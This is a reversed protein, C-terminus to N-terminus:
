VGWDWGGYADRWENDLVGRDDNADFVGFLGGHFENDDIRGDRNDDWRDFLSTNREFGSIFEDEEVLNNDNADWDGYTGVNSVGRFWRRNGENWEAETLGAENRDWSNYVGRVFENRDLGDGGGSNWRDYLGRGRWYTGFEDEAVRSDRNADIGTFDGVAGIGRDITGGVAEGVTEEGPEADGCAALALMSALAAAAIYAKLHVDTAFDLIRTRNSRM